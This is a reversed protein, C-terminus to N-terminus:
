WRKNNRRKRNSKRSPLKPNLRWNRPNQGRKLTPSHTTLVISRREDTSTTVGHWLHRSDFVLMDGKQVVFSINLYPFHVLGGEFESTPVVVCLNHDFKDKHEKKVPTINIIGLAFLSLPRIEEPIQKLETATISFDQEIASGIFNWVDSYDKLFTSGRNDLTAPTFHLTRPGGRQTWIGLSITVHSGRSDDVEKSLEKGVSVIWNDIAEIRELQKEQFFRYYYKIQPQPDEQKEYFAVSHGAIKKFPSSISLQKLIKIQVKPTQHQKPTVKIQERVVTRTRYKDRTKKRAKLRAKSRFRSM